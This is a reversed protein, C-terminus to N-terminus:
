YHGLISVHFLLLSELAVELDLLHFKVLCSKVSKIPLRTFVLIFCTGQPLWAHCKLTGISLHNGWSNVEVNQKLDGARFTGCSFTAGELWGEFVTVM